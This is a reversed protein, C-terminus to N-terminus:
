KYRWVFHNVNLHSTYFLTDGSLKIKLEVCEPAYGEALKVRKATYINNSALIKIEFENYMPLLAGVPINWEANSNLAKLNIEIEEKVAQILPEIAIANFGAEQVEELIDLISTLKNTEIM